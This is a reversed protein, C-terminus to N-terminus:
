GSLPSPVQMPQSLEALVSAGILILWRAQLVNIGMSYAYDEGLLMANLSRVSRFAFGLGGFVVPAYVKLDRWTVGGFSGFSWSIFAQINEPLSYYMLLSVIAGVAYGVMLGLVILSVVSTRRALLLVLLLVATSPSHLPAGSGGLPPGEESVGDRGRDAGGAPGGFSGDRLRLPGGARGGPVLHGAGASAPLWLSQRRGTSRGTALQEQPGRWQVAGGSLGRGPQADQPLSVGGAM